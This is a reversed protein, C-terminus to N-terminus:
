REGHGRTMVQAVLYQVGKKKIQKNKMTNHLIMLFMKISSAKEIIEFLIIWKYHLYKVYMLELEQFNLLNERQSTSFGLPQYRTSM